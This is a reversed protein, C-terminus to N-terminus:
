KNMIEIRNELEKDKSLDIIEPVSVDRFQRSTWDIVVLDNYIAAYHVSIGAKEALLENREEPSFSKESERAGTLECKNLDIGFRRKVFYIFSNPIILCHGIMKFGNRERYEHNGFESIAQKLKAADELPLNHEAWIKDIQINAEDFKEPDKLVQELFTKINDYAIPKLSKIENQTTRIDCFDETNNKNRIDTLSGHRVSICDLSFYDYGTFKQNLGWPVEYDVKEKDASFSFILKDENNQEWREDQTEAKTNLFWVFDIENNKESERYQNPRLMLMYPTRTPTAYHTSIQGKITHYFNRSIGEIIDSENDKIIRKLIAGPVEDGEHVNYFELIEQAKNKKMEPKNLVEIQSMTEKM